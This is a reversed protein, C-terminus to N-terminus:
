VRVRVACSQSHAYCSGSTLVHSQFCVIRDCNFLRLEFVTPLEGQAPPEGLQPGRPKTLM